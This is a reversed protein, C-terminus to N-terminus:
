KNIKLKIVENGDATTAKLQLEGTRESLNAVGNNLAIEEEGVYFKTFRAVAEAPGIVKATNDSVLITVVELWSTNIVTLTITKTTEQYNNNAAAKATIQATGEGVITIVNGSLTAVGTKGDEISYTLPRNGSSVANLTITNATGQEVTINDFGTIEGAVADSGIAKINNGFESWGPAAKYDAVAEAPVYIIAKAKDIGAFDKAVASPPFINHSIISEIATTEQFAGLNPGSATAFKQLSAPLEIKKLTAVNINGIEEVGEPFTLETLKTGRLHKFIKLKSGPAFELVELTGPFIQPSTGNGDVKVVSAPLTFHTIKTGAIIDSFAWGTVNTQAPIDLKTIQTNRFTGSGGIEELGAPLTVEKLPYITTSASISGFLYSGISKVSNPFSIEPIQTESFAYEGITTVGEPIAISTLPTRAFAYKGIETVGTPITISRLEAAERFTDDPIKTLRAPWNFTTIKTDFFVGTGISTVSAPIEFATLSTSQFANDGISVLNNGVSQLLSTVVPNVDGLFGIFANNGISTIVGPKVPWKVEQLVNYTFAGYNGHTSYLGGEPYTVGRVTVAEIKEIGSLDFKTLTRKAVFNNQNLFAFDQANITGTITLETFNAKGKLTTSLTGAVNGTVTIKTGDETVTQAQSALTACCLLMIFLLHKM